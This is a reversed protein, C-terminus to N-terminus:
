DKNWGLWCLLSFLEHSAEQGHLTKLRWSQENKTMDFKKWVHKIKKHKILMELTYACVYTVKCIGSWM